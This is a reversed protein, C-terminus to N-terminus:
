NMHRRMQRLAEGRLAPVDTGDFRITGATPEPLRLITRGATSKGCGSEGVLGLTEGRGVTLDIGDVAHITERIARQVERRTVKFHKVLGGVELLPETAELGSEM